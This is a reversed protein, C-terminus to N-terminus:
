NIPIFRSVSSAIFQKRLLTMFLSSVVIQIEKTKLAQPPPDVSLVLGAGLGADASVSEVGCTGDTLGYSCDM